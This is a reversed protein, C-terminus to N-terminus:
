EKGYDQHTITGAIRAYALAGAHEPEYELLTQGAEVSEPFRVSAGIPETVRGPFREELQEAVDRSLSRRRDVRTPVLAHLPPAMGRKELRGATQLLDVLGMISLTELEVPVVMGGKSGQSILDSVLVLGSLSLTGLQPPCDVVIVDALGRMAEAHDALRFLGDAESSVVVEARALTRDSPVVLLGPRAEITVESLTRDGTLLEATTHGQPASLGLLRAVHGQPDADVLLVRLGKASWAHALSVATTTKGTGGKQNIVAFAHPAM